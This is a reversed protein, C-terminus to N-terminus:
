VSAPDFLIADIVVAVLIADAYISLMAKDAAVSYILTPTKQVLAMTLRQPPACGWGPTGWRHSSASGVAGLELGTHGHLGNGAALGKLLDSRVM